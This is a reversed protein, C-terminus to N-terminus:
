IRHPLNKHNNDYHIQIGMLHTRGINIIKLLDKYYEFSKNFIESSWTYDTRLVYCEYDKIIEDTYWCINPIFHNPPWMDDIDINKFKGTKKNIMVNDNQSNDITICLTLDHIHLCYNNVSNFYNNSSRERPTTSRWETFDLYEVELFSNTELLINPLFDNHCCYKINYLIQDDTVTNFIYPYIDNTNYKNKFKEYEILYKEQM